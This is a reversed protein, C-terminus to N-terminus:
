SRAVARIARSAFSSATTSWISSTLDMSVVAYEHTWTHTCSNHQATLTTTAQVYQATGGHECGDGEAGMQPENARGQQLQKIRGWHLFLHGLFGARDAPDGRTDDSVRDRDRHRAAASAGVLGLVVGSATLLPHRRFWSRNSRSSSGSVGIGEPKQVRCAREAYCCPRVCTRSCCPGWCASRCSDSMRDAQAPGCTCSAASGVDVRGSLFDVNQVRQGIQGLGSWVTIIRAFCTM